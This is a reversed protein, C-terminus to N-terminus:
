AESAGILGKGGTSEGTVGEWAENEGPFGGLRGAPGYLEGGRGNLRGLERGPGYRGGGRALGRSPERTLERRRGYFKRAPGYLRGV